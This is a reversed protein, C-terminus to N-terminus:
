VAAFHLSPKVYSGLCFSLYMYITLVYPLSHTPKNTPLYYVGSVTTIVTTLWPVPVWHFVCGDM